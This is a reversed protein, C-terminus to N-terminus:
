RTGPCERDFSQDLRQQERREVDLRWLSRRPKRSRDNAFREGDAPVRAARQDRAFTKPEVSTSGASASSACCPAVTRMRADTARCVSRAGLPHFREIEAVLVDSEVPSATSGRPAARHRRTAPAAAEVHRRLEAGDDVRMEADIRRGPLRRDEAHDVARHLPEKGKRAPKGDGDAGAIPKDIRRALLQRFRDPALDGTQGSKRGVSGGQCITRSRRAVKAAVGACSAFRGPAAVLHLLRTRAPSQVSVPSGAVMSPAIRDPLRAASMIACSSHNFVICRVVCPAARAASGCRVSDRPLADFLRRSASNACCRGVAMPHELELGVGSNRGFVHQQPMIEAFRDIRRQFGFDRDIQAADLAVM